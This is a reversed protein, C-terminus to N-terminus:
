ATLKEVMTIMRDRVWITDKLHAAMGADAPLTGALEDLLQKGLNGPLTLSPRPAQELESLLSGEWESGNWYWFTTKGREASGSRVYVDLGDKWAPRDVYVRPSQMFM